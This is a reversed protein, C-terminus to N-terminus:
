KVRDLAANYISVLEDSGKKKLEAVFGEWDKMSGEIMIFKDMNQTLYADLQSRLQKLREREEMTFPPDSVFRINEGAQEAKAAKDDWRISEETQWTMGMRNDEYLGFGLYGLGLASALSYYPSQEDKYKNYVDDSMKYEGNTLTYDKGEIGLSTLSSGEESYLWDIFAIAKEPNKLKANLVYSESLHGKPYILNRKAGSPATLTDLMDFQYEPNVKKLTVNFSGAFGHNDQFYFSKGSSLKEQWIQSTATSYDPDLLKEKYLMHLWEVAQKFEPSEPGFQYKGTEPEYYVKSGNFTTYGSGFGFTIPNLLNETGTLGNAARATFPFSDPNAEKMKKLVQYLEDYTSPQNLELNELVDIRMMPLQGGSGSKKAALPFGYLKGDIKNKNIDPQEEIVKKFNPMNDLHPTLDLFIGSDAFNQIDDQKVLLVDPMTNTAILTKKKDDYNSQPVGQVNLKVNQRKLFEQVAVSDSLLAQSPHEYRMWTLELPKDDKGAEEKKGSDAKATPSPSSGGSETNNNNGSCGALLSLVMAICCVWLWGTRSKRHM